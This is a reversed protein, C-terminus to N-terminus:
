AAVTYQCRPIPCVPLPAKDENSKHPVLTGAGPLFPLSAKAEGSKHPVLTGIGAKASIVTNRECLRLSALSFSKAHIGIFTAKKARAIAAIFTDRMDVTRDRQQRVAALFAAQEAALHDFMLVRGELDMEVLEEFLAAQTNRRKRDPLLAM